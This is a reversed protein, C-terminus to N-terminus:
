LLFTAGALPCITDRDSSGPRRANTATIEAESPYVNEMNEGTMRNKIRLPSSQENIEQGILTNQLRM